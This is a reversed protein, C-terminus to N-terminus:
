RGRQAPDGIPLWRDLVEEEYRAALRSLDFEAGVTRASAALARRRGEDTALTSVAAVFEASTRVQIGADRQQLIRTVELDYSVTPVGLGLYEAVKVAFPAHDVVRPYLAIDFSAVLSLARAAPVRGFLIMDERGECRQRVSDSPQGVLWLRAFPVQCAIRDWLELLHDVNYLPNAGRRDKGSLLWAAIYGVVVDGPRKWRVAAEAVDREDLGSLDVAQPIVHCPTEVGMAEFRDAAGRTTVVYAQVNPHNLLHVEKEVFRPDDLDVVMPGPFYPIQEIDNVFASRYQRAARGLLAANRLGRTARLARFELGRVIRQDSCVVLHPDVRRLRPLFAAYRPNNHGRFWINHHFIRDPAAPRALLHRLPLPHLERRTADAIRRTM